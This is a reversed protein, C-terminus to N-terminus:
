RLPSSLIFAGRRVLHIATRKDYDGDSVNIDSNQLARKVDELHGKYAGTVMSVVRENQKKKKALDLVKRVRDIDDTANERLSTAISRNDGGKGDGGGGGLSDSDGLAARTVKEDEDPFLKLVQSYDQRLMTFVTCAASAPSRASFNQRIGFFFSLEGVLEGPNKTGEVQEEDDVTSCIEVTGAAVIYLMNSVENAHFLYEDPSIVTERLIVSVLDLFRDDTNQFATVSTLLGRTLNRAVEVQLTHSLKSFVDETENEDSSTTVVYSFHKRIEAALDVPLKRGVILQEVAMIRQRQEVKEEDQEMVTDSVNGLIYTFVTLNAVMVICAIVGEGPTQPMMDGVLCTTSVTQAIWYFSLIYQDVVSDTEYLSAHGMGSYFDFWATGVAGNAKDRRGVYWLVCALLHLLAILDPLFGSITAYVDSTQASAKRRRRVRHMRLMKPLRLFAMFAFNPESGGIAFSLWAVLDLPFAAVIDLKFEEGMYHRHIQGLDAELVSNANFYATFWKVAIDLLLFGDVVQVAILYPMGWHRVCDFAIRFPVDFFLYVSIATVLRDWLLRLPSHPHIVLWHATPPLIAGGAAGSVSLM